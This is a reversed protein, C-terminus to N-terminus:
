LHTGSLYELKPRVLANFLYRLSNKDLCTYSRTLLGTLRNAINVQNVMHSSFKSNNDFIVCFDKEKEIVELEKHKHNNLDLM